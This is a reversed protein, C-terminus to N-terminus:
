LDVGDIAPERQDWGVGAVRLPSDWLRQLRYGENSLVNM